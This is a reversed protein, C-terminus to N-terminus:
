LHLLLRFCWIAWGGLVAHWGWCWNTSGHVPLSRFGIRDGINCRNLRGEAVKFFFFNINGRGSQHICFNCSRLWGSFEAPRVCRYTLKTGPNHLRVPAAGAWPRHMSCHEIKVASNRWSITLNRNFCNVIRKIHIGSWYEIKRRKLSSSSIDKRWTTWDLEKVMQNSWTSWIENEVLTSVSVSISCRVLGNSAPNEIENRLLWTLGFLYRLCCFVKKERM